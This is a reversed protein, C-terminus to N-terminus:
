DVFPHNAVYEVRTNMNAESLTAPKPEGVVLFTDSPLQDHIAVSGVNNNGNIQLQSPRGPPPLLFAVAQEPDCSDFACNMM